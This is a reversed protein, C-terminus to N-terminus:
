SPRGELQDYPSPPEGVGQPHCASPAATRFPNLTLSAYGDDADPARIQQRDRLLAELM